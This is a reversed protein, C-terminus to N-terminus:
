KTKTMINANDDFYITSFNSSHRQEDSAMSQLTRATPDLVSPFHHTNFGIRSGRAPPKQPNNTKHGINSNAGEGTLLAAQQIQLFLQTHTHAHAFFQGCSIIFRETYPRRSNHELMIIPAHSTAHLM